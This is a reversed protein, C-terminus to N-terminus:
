AGCAPAPPPAGPMEARAMRALMVLAAAYYDPAQQLAPWAPAAGGTAAQSLAAIARVGAHGAYPSLAGSRLDAWAPLSEPRAQAWFRAAAVLGPAENQGAWALFLPVRIADWSFRAPWGTAPSLRGTAADVMLWDPPLGWRGFRAQALLARGDAEVAALAGAGALPALARLAPLNYYSLNVVCGQARTFGVAGPLLLIRDAMTRTCLALIDAVIGSALRRWAPVEWRAAARQLAWAIALDGDTANNLDSVPNSDYPAWRWAALRDSPRALASITWHLMREFSDRDGAWEALLMGFGQGESHSVNANGTDVVRGDAALFRQRFVAWEARDAASGSSARPALAPLAPMPTAQPAQALRPGLMTGAVGLGLLAALVGRRGQPYPSQLPIPLGAPRLM